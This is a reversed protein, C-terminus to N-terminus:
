RETYSYLLATKLQKFVARKDQPKIAFCGYSRGGRNVYNATHLVIDRGGQRTSQGVRKNSWDLGQVSLYRYRKKSTVKEKIGVKFFGYPTMHSNVMNSSRVVRGGKPGSQKGHAVLHRNVKGTQLNIIYLRKDMARKTYDAIALYESSLGKKYRNREYYTFARKLAKQNVNSNQLVRNYIQKLHKSAVHHKQHKIKHFNPYNASALSLSTFLLTILVMIKFKM